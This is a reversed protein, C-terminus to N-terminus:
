DGCFKLYHHMKELARRALKEVEVLAAQEETSAGERLTDLDELLSPIQLRNFVTNGWPDISQAFVLEGKGARGALM